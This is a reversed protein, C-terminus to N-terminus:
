LLRRVALFEEFRERTAPWSQVREDFADANVVLTPFGAKETDRVLLKVMGWTNRCGPTGGYVIFDANHLKALALTDELWMHPADYPGRISKVMPMRANLSALNDLLTDLDATAAEDVRYACGPRAALALASAPEWTACLISAQHTIGLEDLMQWQRLSQAYHDIYCFLARARETGHSLGSVGRGANARAVVLMAELLSTCEGMGAFLFRAAYAFFVFLVPLPNPVMRAHEDLESILEDQRHLTRVVERLRDLDLRTGTHEELFAVLARYDDRHYSDSRVGDLVPPYDLQFFPKDLYSAAFAFANANTDCVGPTDTIVLDVPAGAGALYAGLAGRQASCSTETFGVENCHDLFEASGRQYALSMMASLVELCIPVVDFAYLLSPSFCFTTIATKRGRSRAEAINRFYSAALKLFIRGPEGVSFVTDLVGRFYPVCAVAHRYEKPSGDNLRSAADFASYLMWDFPYERHAQRM